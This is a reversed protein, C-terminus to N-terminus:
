TPMPRAGPFSAFTDSHRGRLPEFGWGETGFVSARDLQAVPGCPRRFIFDLKVRGSLRPPQEWMGIEVHCFIPHSVPISGAVAPAM